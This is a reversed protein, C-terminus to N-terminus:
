KDSPEDEPTAAVLLLMRVDHETAAFRKRAGNAIMALARSRHDHVQRQEATLNDPNVRTARWAQRGLSRVAVVTRGHTHEAAEADTMLRLRSHVTKCLVDYEREIFAILTSVELSFMPSSADCRVLRELTPIEIWSDKAILVDSLDYPHLTANPATTPAPM